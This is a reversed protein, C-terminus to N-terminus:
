NQNELGYPELKIKAAKDKEKVMEDPDNSWWLTKGDCLASVLLYGNDEAVTWLFPANTLGLMYGKLLRKSKYCGIYRKGLGLFDRYIFSTLCFGNLSFVSRSIEITNTDKNFKFQWRRRNNDESCFQFKEAHYCTLWQTDERILFGFSPINVTNLTVSKLMHSQYHTITSQLSEVPVLSYIPVIEYGIIAPIVAPRLCPDGSESRGINGTSTISEAQSDWGALLSRAIAVSGGIGSASLPVEVKRNVDKSRESESLQQLIQGGYIVKKIVHTAGVNMLTEAQTSTLTNITRCFSRIQLTRISAKSSSSEKTHKGFKIGVSVDVFPVLDGPSVLVEVHYGKEQTEYHHEVGYQISWTEPLSEIIPYEAVTIRSASVIGGPLVGSGLCGIPLRASFFTPIFLPLFFFICMGVGDLYSRDLAIRAVVEQPTLAAALVEQLEPYSLQLFCAEPVKALIEEQQTTGFHDLYRKALSQSWLHVDQQNRRATEEKIRVQIVENIAENPDSRLPPQM